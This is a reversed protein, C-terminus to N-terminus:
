REALRATRRARAVGGGPERQDWCPSDEFPLRRFGEGKIRWDGSENELGDIDFHWLV